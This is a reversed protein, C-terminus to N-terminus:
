GNEESEPPRRAAHFAARFAAFRGGAIAARLRAM